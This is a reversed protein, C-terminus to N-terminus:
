FVSMMDLQEGRSLENIYFVGNNQIIFASGHKYTRLESRLAEYYEKSINYGEFYFSKVTHYTDMLYPYHVTGTSENMFFYIFGNGNNTKYLASCLVELRLGIVECIDKKLKMGTDYVHVAGSLDVLCVKNYKEFLSITDSILYLVESDTLYFWEGFEIRKNIETIQDTSYLTVIREGDVTRTHTYISFKRQHSDQSVLDDGSFDRPVSYEGTLKKEKATYGFVSLVCTSIVCISIILSIVAKFLTKRNEAM